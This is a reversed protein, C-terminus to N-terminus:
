PQPPPPPLEPQLAADQVLSGNEPVNVTKIETVPKEFEITGAGIHNTGKIYEGNEDTLISEGVKIGDADKLTVKTLPLPNENAANTARGGGVGFADIKYFYL